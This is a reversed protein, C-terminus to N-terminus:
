PPFISSFDQICNPVVHNNEGLKMLSQEQNECERNARTFPWDGTLKLPLLLPTSPSPKDSFSSLFPYIAQASTQSPSSPLSSSFLTFLRHAWHVQSFAFVAVQLSAASSGASLMHICISRAPKLTGQLILQPAPQFGRHTQLSPIPPQPGIATPSLPSILHFNGRFHALLFQLLMASIDASCKEKNVTSLALLYTHLFSPTPIVAALSFGKSM